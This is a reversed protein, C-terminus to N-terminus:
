DKVRDRDDECQEPQREPLEEVDELPWRLKAHTEVLVDAGLALLGVTDAAALRERRGHHHTIQRRDLLLEPEAILHLTVPRLVVLLDARLATACQKTQRLASQPVACQIKPKLFCIMAVIGTSSSRIM